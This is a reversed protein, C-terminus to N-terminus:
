RSLSKGRSQLSHLQRALGVQFLKFFPVHYPVTEGGIVFIQLLATQKTKLLCHNVSRQSMMVPMYM